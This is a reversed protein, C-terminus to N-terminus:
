AQQSARRDLEADVAKMEAAIPVFALSGPRALATSVALDRRVRELEPVSMETLSSEPPVWALRVWVVRDGDSATQVGWNGPGALANVIDLGHPRDETTRCHWEGGLDECEIRVHDRHLEVRVTFFEGASDSHTISNAALESIVLLADDTVPCGDLYRAADHRAKSVQDARGHYTRQYRTATATSM